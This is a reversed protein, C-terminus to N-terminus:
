ASTTRIKPSQEGGKGFVVKLRKRDAALSAANITRVHQVEGLEEGLSVMDETLITKFIMLDDSCEGGIDNVVSDIKDLTLLREHFVALKEQNNQESM